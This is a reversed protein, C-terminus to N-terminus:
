PATDLDVVAQPEGDPTPDVEYHVLAFDGNRFVWKGSSSEDGQDIARGHHDIGTGAEVVATLKAQTGLDPDAGVLEVCSTRTPQALQRAGLPDDDAVTMDRRRPRHQARRRAIELAMRRRRRRGLQHPVVAHREIAAPARM